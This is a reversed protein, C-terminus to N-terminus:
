QEMQDFDQVTQFCTPTHMSDFKNLMRSYEEYNLKM